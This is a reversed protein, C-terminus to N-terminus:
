SLILTTTGNDEDDARVVRFHKSDDQRVLDSGIVPRPSPLDATVVCFIRMRQGAGSMRPDDNRISAPWATFTATGFAFTKGHFEKMVALGEALDNEASTSM